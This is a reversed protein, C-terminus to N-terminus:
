EAGTYIRRSANITLRHMITIMIMRQHIVGTAKPQKVTTVHLKYGKKDNLRKAYLEMEFNNHWAKLKLTLLPTTAQKSTM